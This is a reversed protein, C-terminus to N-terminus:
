GTINGDGAQGGSGNSSTDAWNQHQVTTQRTCQQHQRHRRGSCTITTTKVQANYYYGFTAENVGAFATGAPFFLEPWVSSSVANGSVRGQVLSADPATTAYFTTFDGYGNMQGNVQREPLTTGPYAGQNPTLAGGITTFTGNDKLVATYANCAPVTYTAGNVTGENQASLTATDGSPVKVTLTDGAKWATSSTILTITSTWEYSPSTSVSTWASPTYDTGPALAASGDSLEANTGPTGTTWGYPSTGGPAGLGTGNTGGNFTVTFKPAAIGCEARTGTGDPTITAVRTFRDLAWIGGGSGSDQRDSLRTTATVDHSRGSRHSNHTSASAATPIIGALGMGAVATVGLAVQIVRAKM